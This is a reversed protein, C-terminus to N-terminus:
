EGEGEREGICRATAQLGDPRLGNGLPAHSKARVWASQGFSPQAHPKGEGGPLLCGLFLPILSVVIPRMMPPDSRATKPSTM